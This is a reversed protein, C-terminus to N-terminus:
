INFQEELFSIMARNQPLLAPIDMTNAKYLDTAANYMDWVTVRQEEDYRILLDETFKNIQASNLPYTRNEKIAKNSTDAKVRLATLMGIIRFITDADCEVNKMREIRERESEIAHRADMLWGRVTDIVEPIEVGNGRGTGRESYTAVYHTPSLMCQNHCIKVMNGFGVQIGKQHFAVALNTTNDADDFDTLRINAFVRRLIHAEVARTGFQQEVQPLLVVGPTNRDKNQAAFLDYVEVGYNQEKCLEIVQNLLQYHYIGRLPNGYIDNEKHTRELQNLTLTQVKAKEFDFFQNSTEITTM